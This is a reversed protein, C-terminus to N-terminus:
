RLDVVEAGEPITYTFISDEVGINTRLNEITYATKKGGADELEAKRILFSSPDVWLKLSTILSHEDRPVLKLVMVDKGQLRENGALTADYDDPAGTLVEEPSLAKAQPSYTDIIVQGTVPSYSWVTAGNTVVTRDEMEVRYRNGKKLLLTGASRQELNTREFWVHQSFSIEADKISDYKKRVDELVEYPDEARLPTAFFAPVLLALFFLRGSLVPIM